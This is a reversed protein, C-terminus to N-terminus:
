NLGKVFFTITEINVAKAQKAYITCNLSLTTGSPNFCMFQAVPAIDGSLADEVSLTVYGFCELGEQYLVDPFVTVTAFYPYDAYPSGENVWWESTIALNKTIYPNLSAAATDAKKDLAASVAEATYTLKFWFTAENAPEHGLNDDCLSVYWAKGLDGDQIYSVVSGKEYCSEASWESAGAGFKLMKGVFTEWSEEGVPFHASRLVKEKLEQLAMYIRDLSYEYDEAPFAEGEIFKVLQNLVVSRVITLKEGAKPAEYFIVTGGNGTESNKIRYDVGKEYTVFTKNKYVEVEEDYFKFTVAFERTVGDCLYTNAAYNDLVTMIKRREYINDYIKVEFFLCFEWEAGNFWFWETECKGKLM